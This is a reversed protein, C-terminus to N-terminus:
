EKTKYEKDVLEFHIPILAVVLNTGMGADLPPPAFPAARQAAAVAADDLQQDVSVSVTKAEVLEGKAGVAICLMVDGAVGRRRAAVPYRVESVMRRRVERWYATDFGADRAHRNNGTMEGIDVRLPEAPLPRSLAAALVAPSPAGDFWLPEPPPALPAVAERSEMTAQAPLERRAERAPPAELFDPPLTLPKIIVVEYAPPAERRSPSFGHLTAGYFVATICLSMAVARKSVFARTDPHWATSFGRIKKRLEDTLLLQRSERM